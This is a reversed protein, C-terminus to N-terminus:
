QFPRLGLPPPSGLPSSASAILVFHPENASKWAAKLATLNQQTPAHQFAQARVHLEATLAVHQEQQMSIQSDYFADVQKQRGAEVSATQQEEGSGDDDNSSCSLIATAFFGCLALSLVVRKTQIM